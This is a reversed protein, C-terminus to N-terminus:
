KKKSRLAADYALQAWARMESPDEMAEDPALHYSMNVVGDGKAYQFPPLDRSEFQAKSQADVKLYLTDDAVLGIMLGDYFVGHGGFMRRSSVRGFEAFLEELYDVFDSM